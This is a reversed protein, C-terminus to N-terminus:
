CPCFGRCSRADEVIVYIPQRFDFPWFVSQVGPAPELTSNVLLYREIVNLLKFVDLLAGPTKVQV